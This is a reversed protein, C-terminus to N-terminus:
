QEGWADIVQARPLDRVTATRTREMRAALRDMAAAVALTQKGHVRRLEAARRLDAATCDGLTKDAGGPLGVRRALLQRYHDRILDARSPGERRPHQKDEVMAAGLATQVATRPRQDEEIERVAGGVDKSLTRNVRAPLTVALAARIEDPTLAALVAAAVKPVDVTGLEDAAERIRANLTAGDVVAVREVTETV